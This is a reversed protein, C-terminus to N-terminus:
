VELTSRNQAWYVKTTVGAECWTDYPEGYPELVSEPLGVHIGSPTEIGNDATTELLGVRGWWVFVRFTDNYHYTVCEDREESRTPKGYVTEVAAANAGLPIGGLAIESPSIAASALTGVSFLLCFFLMSLRKRM